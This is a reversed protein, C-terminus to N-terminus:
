QTETQSSEAEPHVWLDRVKRFSEQDAFHLQLGIGNETRHVAYAPIRCIGEPTNECRFEIEMNEDDACPQYTEVFMGELNIDKVRGSVWEGHCYMRVDNSLTIRESWRREM